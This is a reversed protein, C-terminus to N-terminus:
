VYNVEDDCVGNLDFGLEDLQELVLDTDDGFTDDGFTDDDSGSEEGISSEDDTVYIDKKTIVSQPQSIQLNDIMMKTNDDQNTNAQPATSDPTTQVEGNTSTSELISESPLPYSALYKLMRRGRDADGFFAALLQDNGMIEKKDNSGYMSELVGVVGDDTLYKSLPSPKDDTANNRFAYQFQRKKSKSGFEKTDFDTFAKAIFTGVKNPTSEEQTVTVMADWAYRKAQRVKPDVKHPESYSYPALEQNSRKTPNLEDYVRRYLFGQIGWKTMLDHDEAYFDFHDKFRTLNSPLENVTRGFKHLRTSWSVYVNPVATQVVDIQHTANPNPCRMSNLDDILVQDQYTYRVPRDVEMADSSATPSAHIYKDQLLLRGQEATGFFSRLLDDQQLLDVDENAETDYMTMFVRVLDPGLLYHSLPLLEAQDSVVGSRYTVNDTKHIAYQSGRWTYGKNLVSAIHTGISESTEQELEEEKLITVMAKCPKPGWEFREVSELRSPYQHYVPHRRDVFGAIKWAKVLDLEPASEDYLDYHVLHREFSYNETFQDLFPKIPHYGMTGDPRVVWSLYVGKAATEITILSSEFHPRRFRVSNDVHGWHYKEDPYLTQLREIDEPKWGKGDKPCMRSAEDLTISAMPGFHSHVNMSLRILCRKDKPACSKIGKSELYLKSRQHSSLNKYQEMLRDMMRQRRQLIQNTGAYKPKPNVNSQYRWMTSFRRFTKQISTAALERKREEKSQSTHVVEQIGLFSKVENDDYLEGNYQCSIHLPKSSHFSTALEELFTQIRISKGDYTKYCSEDQLLLSRTRHEFTNKAHQLLCNRCSLQYKAQGILDQLNYDKSCHNCKAFAMWAFDAKSASISMASNYSKFAADRFQLLRKFRDGLDSYYSRGVTTHKDRSKCDSTCYGMFCYFLCESEILEQMEIPLTDKSTVFSEIVTSYMEQSSCKLELPQNRHADIEPECVQCFKPFGGWDFSEFSKPVRRGGSNIYKSKLCPGLNIKLKCNPGECQHLDGFKEILAQLSITADLGSRNKYVVEIPEGDWGKKIRQCGRHRYCYREDRILPVLSKCGYEACEVSPGIMKARHIRFRETGKKRVISKEESTMQLYKLRRKDNAAQLDSGQYKKRRNANDKDIQEQSMGERKIAWDLRRNANDEDKKEPPRRDRREKRKASEM